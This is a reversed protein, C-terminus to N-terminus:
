FDNGGDGEWPPSDRDNFDEAVADGQVYQGTKRDYGLLVVEGVSQGTYRDKLCRLGTRLREEIDEAQQNRELGFAFNTWFGIARAGKFHRMMVRAGEEHSKGGEPTALHSVYYGYVGLQHVLAAFRAMITELSAREDNPDALATLHDLFLHRVGLGLVMFRM